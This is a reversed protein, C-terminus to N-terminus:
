IIIQLLLPFEHTAMDEFTFHGKDTFQKLIIGPVRQTITEVSTLVDQGDDLSVLITVGATQDVIHENWTFIFFDNKLHKKPDIWPAVLVVPGVKQNNESLYRVFFGGGCSHGVLLTEEDLPIQKLVALWDEYVPEYPKPLEPLFVQYGRAELEKKLWPLWHKQSENGQYESEEPMGHFIVAKKM